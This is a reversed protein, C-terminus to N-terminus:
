RIYDSRCYPRGDKIFCTECNEDMYEQCECCVLCSVHWDLNPSVHLSFEDEISIKCGACIRHLQPQVLTATGSTMDHHDGAASHDVAVLLSMKNIYVPLIHVEM